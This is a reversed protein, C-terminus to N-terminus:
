LYFQVTVHRAPKSSLFLRATDISLRLALHPHTNLGLGPQNVGPFSAKYLNYLFRPIQPQDAHIWFNERKVLTQVVSRRAQLWAIGVVWTNNSHWYQLPHSQCPMHCPSSLLAYLPITLFSSHLLGNLHCPIPTCPFIINVHIMLLYSPQMNEAIIHRLIPALPTNKKVSYHVM